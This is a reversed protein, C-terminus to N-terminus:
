FWNLLKLKPKVTFLDKITVEAFDTGSTLPGGISSRDIPSSISHTKVEKTNKGTEEMMNLVKAPRKANTLKSPTKSEVEPKSAIFSLSSKDQNPSSVVFADRKSYSLSLCLFLLPVYCNLSVIIFKISSRSSPELGLM